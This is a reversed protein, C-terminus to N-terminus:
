YLGPIESLSIYKESRSRQDSVCKGTEIRILKALRGGLGRTIVPVASGPGGLRGLWSGSKQKAHM